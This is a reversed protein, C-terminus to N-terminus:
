KKKMGYKKLFRDVRGESDVLRQKGTYFPHCSGCIDIAFDGKTSITTYTTGCACSITCEKADPHIDTKM